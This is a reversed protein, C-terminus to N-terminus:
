DSPVTVAQLPPADDGAPVAVHLGWCLTTAQSTRGCTSRDGATLSEFTTSDSRVLVPLGASIESGDGLQGSDNSGWCYIRGGAVLGCTHSTGAALATFRLHKAAPTPEFRALGDGTGLQGSGNAGWCFARGRLTLGCGHDSGATLSIFPETSPVRAPALVDASIAVGLQGEGNVGWCYADGGRSLACTFGNGTAVAAFGVPSEVRVPTVAVTGVAGDGLQGHDNWGWCYLSGDLELGCTHHYSSAISIFRHNGDVAPPTGGSSAGTTGLLAEDGWCYTDDDWAIICTHAFGAAV